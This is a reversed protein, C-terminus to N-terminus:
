IEAFLGRHIVFTNDEKEFFDNDGIPYENEVLTVRQGSIRNHLADLEEGGYAAEAKERTTNEDKATAAVWHTKFDDIMQATFERKVM